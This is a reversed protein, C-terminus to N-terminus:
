KVRKKNRRKLLYIIGGVLVIGGIILLAIIGGSLGKDKNNSPSQSPNQEQYDHKENDTILPENDM